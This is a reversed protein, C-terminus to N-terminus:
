QLGDVTEDDNQACGRRM